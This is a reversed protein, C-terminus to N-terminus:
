ASPAPDPSWREALRTAGVVGAPLLLLAAGPVWSIAALSLGFGLIPAPHRRLLTFRARARVGRLTLPYDLLNWALTLALPLIQLPVLVFAAGPVLASAVWYLVWLPVSLLLAGLQAELGCWLEFWLGRAKRAPVGLAAEQKRVLHELAPASLVPASLLALLFAAYVALASAVWRVLAHASQAYWSDADPLLTDALWPGVNGIALWCLPVAVVMVVFGPVAAALWCDRRVAIFRAGAGLARAGDWFTPAGRTAGGPEPASAVALSTMRAVIGPDCGRTCGRM